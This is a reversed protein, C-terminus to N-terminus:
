KNRSIEHFEFGFDLAIDCIRLLKASETLM